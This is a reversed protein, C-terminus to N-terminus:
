AIPFGMAVITFQSLPAIRVVDGPHPAHVVNGNGIYMVVHHGNNCFVLDGPQLQSTDYFLHGVARCAPLQTYTTRPISYGCQAFAYQMLGSCDTGGSAPYNGGWVYPKGLLSLAAAVLNSRLDEGVVAPTGSTGSSSAAQARAAAVAAEQAKRIEEQRAAEEEQAKKEMLDRVEQDLSDVLRTAEQQKAQAAATQSELQAQLQQVESRQAELDSRQSELSTREAELAAKDDELQAKQAELQVKQAELQARQNEEQQKLGKVEAIKSAESDSVRQLYHVNSLLAEMSDSNLIVALLSVQGAKYSTSIREALADQKSRIDQQTHEIEDQKAEIDGKKADIDQAKADIDAQKADISAQKQDIEGQKSSIQGTLDDVHAQTEAQQYGLSELEEGVQALQQQAADYRSQADSLKDLTEQSASPAALAPTPVAAGFGFAVIGAGLAGLVRRRVTRNVNHSPDHQM